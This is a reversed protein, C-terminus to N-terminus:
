FTIKKADEMIKAAFSGELPISKYKLQLRKSFILAEPKPIKVTIVLEEMDEDLKDVEEGAVVKGAGPKENVGNLM